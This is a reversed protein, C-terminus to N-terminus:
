LRYIIFFFNFDITKNQFNKLKKLFIGNQLQIEGVYPDCNQTMESAIGQSSTDYKYLYILVSKLWNKQLEPELLAKM